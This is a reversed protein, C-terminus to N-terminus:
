WICAQNKQVLKLKIQCGQSAAADDSAGSTTGDESCKWGGGASHSGERCWICYCVKRDVQDIRANLAALDGALGEIEDKTHGFYSPNNSNYAAAFGMAGFFLLIVFFAYLQYPRVSFTIAPSKEM